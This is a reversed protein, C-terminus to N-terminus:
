KLGAKRLASIHRGLTVPDKIPVRQKHVELSFKPNIRLVETAETRAETEQGLESYVAALLVQADVRHSYVRLFRQLPEIAEETRGTLYYAQGLPLFYLTRPRSDRHLAQEIVRIAEEPRGVWNLLSAVLNPEITAIVPTHGKNVEVEAQGYQKNLVYAWGLAIHGWPSSTDVTVAQQAAELAQEPMRPDQRRQSLWAEVYAGVLGSYPLV